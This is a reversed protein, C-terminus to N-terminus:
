KKDYKKEQKQTRLDKDARTILDLLTKDGTDFAAVGATIAPHILQGDVEIEVGAIGEVIRRAISNGASFDTEPLLAIFEDGGYRAFLDLDRLNARISTAMAKLVRDGIPHGFTDNVVKFKDADFMIVVLSRQYRMGRVYEREAEAFFARRNNVGTLPDLVALQQVEQLLRQNDKEVQIDQISFIVYDESNLKVPTTMIRLQFPKEGSNRHITVEQVDIKGILSNLVANVAGCGQCSTTTGCGGPSEYAHACNILEGPRLGLYSKSSSYNGFQQVKSNAYVIQRTRNVVLIVNPVADGILRTQEQEIWAQHQQLLTARDTREAPAYDTPLAQSKGISNTDALKMAFNYGFRGM